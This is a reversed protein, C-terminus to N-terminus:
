SINRRQFLVRLRGPNSTFQDTMDRMVNDGTEGPALRVHYKSVLRATVLRMKDMALFRGLCSHHG